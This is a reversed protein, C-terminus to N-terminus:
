SYKAIANRCVEVTMLMTANAPVSRMLCPACGRFFRRVGGEELYLTKACHPISKFRRLNKDSSDSQMASKIVDTPYTLSWYAFGGCGGAIM